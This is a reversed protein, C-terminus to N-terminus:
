IQTSSVLICKTMCQLANELDKQDQNVNINIVYLIHNFMVMLLGNASEPAIHSCSLAM